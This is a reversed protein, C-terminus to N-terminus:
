AHAVAGAEMPISMTTSGATVGGSIREAALRGSILVTPVGVGPTTGSGALVLNDVGHVLNPRRFPGTQRFLHAASFPSGDLMGKDAWTQPTDLHDVRMSSALGRYGRRELVQQIERMYPRGLRGWDLPAAALNPCPALVSVPECEVGGRVVRLSPDTVAPRTILLSPDAMLRGRGRPATIRAFTEAWEAGFDITHHSDPWDQTVDTPVTGHFVVASPSAVTASRARRRPPVGARLLLDDVVPLDVTLVVADAAFERGDASRVSRARGGDVRLESVEVGTNVTGGGRVLADVMAAAIASMGGKPFYVGLSTDMHAIAGYVALATSPATGAYLAQFTFIRRLREDKIFSGVRSGLRGFGGLRVLNATDRLAAPTSVLDLPSDFNSDIYRDFEADFISALWRRLRRYGGAEEPGCVRAIEATMEDPDSYVNLATGDAFRAHYGPALPTLDLAPTTSDFSEGVAALADAILNPMTLVSAGNDIDYLHRGDEFVPYTGVRGGVTDERELVTVRKGAGTLHLAASLGALGAGVVVVSEVPGGVSRM